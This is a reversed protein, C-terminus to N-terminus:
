FMGGLDSDQGQPLLALIVSTPPIMYVIAQYLSGGSTKRRPTVVITVALAPGCHDNRLPLLSLKLDIAKASAVPKVRNTPYCKGEGIPGTPSFVRRQPDSIHPM